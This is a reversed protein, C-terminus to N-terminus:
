GGSVPPLIALVDGDSLESELGSSSSLSRGNVLFQLYGKIEGTNSDYLM